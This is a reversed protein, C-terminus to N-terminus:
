KWGWVAAWTSYRMSSLFPSFAFAQMTRNVLSTLFRCYFCLTMLASVIHHSFCPWDTSWAEHPRSTTSVREFHLLCARQFHTCNVIEGGIM